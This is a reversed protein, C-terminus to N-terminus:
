SDDSSDGDGSSDEDGSGEGDGSDEAGEADEGEEGILEPDQEVEPEPEEFVPPPNLTAVTLEEPDEILFTVGKPANVSSLQLTDGVEMQSVDVEITEPIDTPLASIAIERTVHELIGGEKVGPADDTGVLDLVTEADIEQDLRVELLDLHLLDGRVPHRQQDKVVTSLAKGKGDFKVDILAGGHQLALRIERESVQFARADKGEGYVVGPVMGERRLRRSTRSGFDTREAVDLSARDTAM